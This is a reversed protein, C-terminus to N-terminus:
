KTAPPPAAPATDPITVGAGGSQKAPPAIDKLLADREDVEKMRTPTDVVQDAPPVSLAVSQTAAVDETVEVHMTFSRGDRQFSLDAVVHAHLPFAADADLVADGDLAGVQVTERWKKQALAQKPAAKSGPALHISIKRGDRGGVSAAGEDNVEAAFAILDFYDGAVAAIQDLTDETEHKDNPDRRHWRAYRPRLYLKGGLFTVERGYDADNDYLAHYTGDAAAEIDTEDALHDVVDDGEKVQYASTIKVTHAGIAATIAHHPLAMARELEAADKGAKGVDVPPAEPPSVVLGGLDEDKVGGSDGCAPALALVVLFRARMLRTNADEVAGTL